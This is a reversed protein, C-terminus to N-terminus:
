KCLNKALEEVPPAKINIVFPITQVQGRHKFQLWIKYMGETMPNHNDTALRLSPGRENEPDDVLPWVAHLHVFRKEQATNGNESIMIAHGFSNLWTDLDTLDVYSGTKPDLHQLTINLLASFTGCHYYTESQLQIRYDHYLKYIFGDTDIPDPLLPKKEPRPGVATLSLPLTTMSFEMPMSEAFVFYEGSKPVATAADLNYSDTTPQNLDIGFIGLHERIQIPHLHSFSELDESVIILHMPKEHMPHFHHVQEASETDSIEIKLNVPEGASMVSTEENNLFMQAALAGLSPSAFQLISLLLLIKLKIM